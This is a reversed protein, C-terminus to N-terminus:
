EKIFYFINEKINRVYKKFRLFFILFIDKFFSFSFVMFNFMAIGNTVYSSMVLFNKIFSSAIFINDLSSFLCIPINLKTPFYRVPFDNRKFRTKISFFDEFPKSTAGVIFGQM